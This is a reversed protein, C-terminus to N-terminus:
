LRGGAAQRLEARLRVVEDLLDERREEERGELTNERYRTELNELYRELVQAVLDLRGNQKFLRAAVSLLPQQVEPPQEGLAPLAGVILDMAEEAQGRRALEFAAQLDTGAPSGLFEQHALVKDRHAKQEARRTEREQVARFWRREAVTRPVWDEHIVRPRLRPARPPPPARPAVTTSADYERLFKDDVRQDAFTRVGGPQVGQLLVPLLAMLVALVVVSGVGLVILSRNSDM